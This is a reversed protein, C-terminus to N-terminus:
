QDRRQLRFCQERTHGRAKCYTCNVEERGERTRSRQNWNRTPEKNKSYSHSQNRKREMESMGETVHYMKELFVEVSEEGLTLATARLSAWEIGGILLNIQDRQPLNLGHMLSLKDLAYQSFTEKATLWKRKEIRQMATFFPVKKGFMKEIAQKFSNWCELAPGTQIDYWRRASKMLKGTAALLTVDDTVRHIRAVREVRQIWLAVNEEDAGGFEPIQTALLSVANAPPLTSLTTHRASEGGITAPSITSRRSGSVPAMGATGTMPHTIAEAAYNNNINPGMQFRQFMTQQQQMFASMTTVLQNLIVAVNANTNENGDETLVEPEPQGEQEVAAAEATPTLDVLPSNREMHELINELLTSRGGRAPINHSKAEERLDKISM